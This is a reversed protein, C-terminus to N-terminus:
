RCGRPLREREAYRKFSGREQNESRRRTFQFLPSGCRSNDCFRRATKLEGAALPRGNSLQQEGCVPCRVGRTQLFAIQRQTLPWGAEAQLLKAASVVDGWSRRVDSFGGAGHNHGAPGGYDYAHEWGSGRRAPTQKLGAVGPRGDEGEAVLPVVDGTRKPHMTAVQPWVAEVERQWKAVLQPPCLVIGRQAGGGDNVGAAIAAR